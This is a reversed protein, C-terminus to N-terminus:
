TGNPHQFNRWSNVKSQPAKIKTGEVRVIELDVTMEGNYNEEVEYVGVVDLPQFSLITVFGEFEEGGGQAYYRLIYDCDISITEDRYLWGRFPGTPAGRDNYMIEYARSLSWFFEVKGNNHNSNHININTEVSSECIAKVPYSYLNFDTAQATAPVMLAGAGVLSCVLASIATSAKGAIHM